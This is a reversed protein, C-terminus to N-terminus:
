PQQASQEDRESVRTSEAALEDLMRRLSKRNLNRVIQGRVAVSINGTEESIIVSVADSEETVGIGARHRTGLSKAVSPNESLPFLIGAAAIKNERIVVAGDHLPSGPWFITAILGASVDADLKVGREIFGGLGVEREITILGGVKNRSLLAASEVIENVIHSDARFFLGFLPNQGIRILARRLEPQFIVIVPLVFVPLFRTILWDITYLEFRKVLFLIVLSAMVVIFALGRLIGAGRTGHLFRLVAYLMLYILLIEFAARLFVPWSPLHVLLEKM